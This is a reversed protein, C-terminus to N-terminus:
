LIAELDKIILSMSPYRHDPDKALCKLVISRLPAPANPNHTELPTPPVAPDVQALREQDVTDAEFPKHYCLMEYCTVGFSYIDAREDVLNTTLVEPAVYAPTGPMERIRVPKAKRHMVLDFDVLVVQGDDRVLLNEPKFDLHILGAGHLYFLAAAMQRMLSLTNDALLTDRHLIRERLNQAELYELVMYPSRGEKGTTLLRVINPHHLQALVDASHLFNKHIKRDRVYQERLVRVIVREQNEDRAVYLHAMGGGSM